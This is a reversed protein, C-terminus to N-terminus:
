MLQYEPSTLVLATVGALAADDSRAHRAEDRLVRAYTEDELDPVLARMVARPTDARDPAGFAARLDVRLRKKEGAHAQAVEVMANHRAVWTGANIWTRMGDWGKVSPPRFLSQGMEAAAQVAVAPALRAALTRVTGAVLEVPAAIRSRRVAPSFFLDSALLGRVTKGV